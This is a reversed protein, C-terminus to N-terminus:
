SQLLSFCFLRKERKLEQAQHPYMTTNLFNKCNILYVMSSNARGVNEKKKDEEMRPITEALIM